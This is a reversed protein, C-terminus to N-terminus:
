PGLLATYLWLAVAIAAIATSLLAARRTRGGDPAERVRTWVGGIRVLVFFALLLPGMWQWGTPRILVLAWAAILAVNGLVLFAQLRAFPSM